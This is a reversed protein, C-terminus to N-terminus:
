QEYLFGSFYSKLRKSDLDIIMEMLQEQKKLRNQRAAYSIIEGRVVM